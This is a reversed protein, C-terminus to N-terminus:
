EGRMLKAMKEDHKKEEGMLWRALLVAGGFMGIVFLITIGFGAYTGLGVPVSFTTGDCINTYVTSTLNNTERICEPVFQFQQPNELLPGTVQIIPQM